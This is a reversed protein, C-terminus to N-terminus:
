LYIRTSIKPEDIDANLEDVNSGHLSKQMNRTNGPQEWSQRVYMGEERGQNDEKDDSKDKEKTRSTMEQWLRQWQISQQNNTTPQQMDGENDKEKNCMLVNEEDDATRTDRWEEESYDDRMM